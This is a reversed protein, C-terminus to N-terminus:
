KKGPSSDTKGGAGFPLSWLRAVRDTGFTMLLSSDATPVVRVVQGTPANKFTHM